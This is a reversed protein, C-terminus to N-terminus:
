SKSILAAMKMNLDFVIWVVKHLQQQNNIDHVLRAITILVLVYMM